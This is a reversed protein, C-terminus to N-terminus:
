PWGNLVICDVLNLTLDIEKLHKPEVSLVNGDSQGLINLLMLVDIKIFLMECLYSQIEVVGEELIRQLVLLLWKSHM